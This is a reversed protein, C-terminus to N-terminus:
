FLHINQKKCEERMEDPWVSSQVEGIHAKRLFYMCMRSQGIGGGLTLPLVDELIGKHFDYERKFDEGAITLQEDLSKSDVRIGMSSLEFSSQLVPHWFLIDGNLKWDDYDAARGDHKEGSRLAGGIGSIFVAGYEKAIAHERDKPTLEPYKDELEQSTIFAIDEPLYKGLFPYKEFLYDELDKFIGYIKRVTEQLYDMTRWEKQLIKEWDWQDVYISHTADLEEDRRIANMNTYLGEGAEYGYEHLAFRKWKALSHVIELEEGSYLMDFEIPREVGNLHDNLGSKKTVFLPASVRFLELRKSLQEEFFTKVEKIAIQTERVTMLTQYM